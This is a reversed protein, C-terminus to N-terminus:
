MQEPNPNLCPKHNILKLFYMELYRWAFIGLFPAQIECLCGGGGREGLFSDPYKPGRVTSLDWQRIQFFFPHPPATNPAQSGETHIICRPQNLAVRQPKM